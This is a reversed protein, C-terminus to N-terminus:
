KILFSSTNIGARFSKIYKGNENYILIESKQVYDKADTILIQKQYSDYGLGYFTKGNSPIFATTPKVAETINMSWVDQVLWFLKDKTENMLLKIPLNGMGLVITKEISNQTPSLCHLQPEVKNNGSANGTTLVWLKNNKDLALSIAGYGIFISDTLMNTKADIVYLYSQYKNCVFVKEGYKLMEETWGPCAIKSSVKLTNLNVVAIHNDYLDSVYATQASIPLMFRPARLGIISGESKFSHKNVIEIKGSNNLVLYIKDEWICISQLVDGLPKQNVTRYVDEYLTGNQKDLFSLSANGWQFNGESGILMGQSLSDGPVAKPAVSPTKDCASFVMNLGALLLLSLYTFKNKQATTLVM